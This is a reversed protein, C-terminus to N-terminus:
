AHRGAVSSPRKSGNLDALNTRFGPTRVLEISKWPSTRAVYFRAGDRDEIATVAASQHRWALAWIIAFGAAIGPIQPEAFAVGGAGVTCVIIPWLRNLVTRAPNIEPLTAQTRASALLVAIQRSTSHTRGIYLGILSALLWWGASITGTLINDGSGNVGALTVIALVTAAAACILVTTRLLDTFRM